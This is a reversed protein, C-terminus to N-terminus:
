YTRKDKKALTIENAEEQVGERNKKNKECQKNSFFDAIMPTKSKNGELHIPPNVLQSFNCLFPVVIQTPDKTNDITINNTTIDFPEESIDVNAAKHITINSLQIEPPSDILLAKSVLPLTSKLLQPSVHSRLAM